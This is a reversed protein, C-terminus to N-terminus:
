LLKISIYNCVIFLLGKLTHLENTKLVTVPVCGDGGALKLVNENGGLSVRHANAIVVWEGEFGM